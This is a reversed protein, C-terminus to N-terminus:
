LASSQGCGFFNNEIPDPTKVDSATDQPLLHKEADILLQLAFVMSCTFAGASGRNGSLVLTPSAGFQSMWRPGAQVSDAVLHCARDLRV